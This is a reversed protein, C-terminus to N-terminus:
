LNINEKNLCSGYCQTKEATVSPTIHMTTHHKTQQVMVDNM